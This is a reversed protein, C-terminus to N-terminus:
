TAAAFALRLHRDGGEVVALPEAVRRLQGLLVTPRALSVEIIADSRDFSHTYVETVGDVSALAQEFALLQDVDSFPGCAVSVTGVYVHEETWGHATTVAPPESAAPAAVAHELAARTRVAIEGLQERASALVGHVEREAEAITRRAVALPDDKPALPRRPPRRPASGFTGAALAAAPLESARAAAVKAAMEALPDGSPDRPARRPRVGSRGQSPTMSALDAQFGRLRGEMEAISAVTEAKSDGATARDSM